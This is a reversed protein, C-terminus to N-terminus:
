SKKAKAGQLAKKRGHQHSHNNEGRWILRNNLKNEAASGQFSYCKNLHTDHLLIRSFGNTIAGPNDDCWIEWWRTHLKLKKATLFNFNYKCVHFSFLFSFFLFTCAEIILRSVKFSCCSFPNNQIPDPGNIRAKWLKVTRLGGNWHTDAKGVLFPGVYGCENFLSWLLKRSITLSTRM